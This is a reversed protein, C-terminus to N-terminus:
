GGSDSATEVFFLDVSVEVELAECFVPWLELFGKSLLKNVMVLKNVEIVVLLCVFVVPFNGLLGAWRIDLDALIILFKFLIVFAFIGWLNLALIWGDNVLFSANNISRKVDFLKM